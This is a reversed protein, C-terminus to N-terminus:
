GGTGLILFTGKEEGKRGRLPAAPQATRPQLTNTPLIPRPPQGPRTAPQLAPKALRAQLPAAAPTRVPTAPAPSAQMIRPKGGPFFGQIVRAPGGPRHPHVPGPQPTM